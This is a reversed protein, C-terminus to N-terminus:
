MSAGDVLVGRLQAMQLQLLAMDYKLAAQKRELGSYTEFMGVLEMLPRRGFKYQETFMELSAKTEALVGIGQAQQAALTEYSRQLGVIQRRSDEAAEAARRDVVDNTASIAELSAATGLGLMQNAGLRLGSVIGDGNIAASAKLSPLYGAREMKAQAVLQAGEGRAKLVSLPEVNGQDVPLDQLGSLGAVPTATMTNLEAMATQADQLDSDRAARIETVKQSIVRSESRDSMGGEVRALMIREYDAMRAVAVEALRAQEQARQAKVYYALGDHVRRNIDTSLNVAAVEVDAAAYAREAKKLGNDFLVQEVLLSTVVSSLSTLDVSPGLSPLWNKSKADARLRAVRLEAQAAGASASLVSGAVQAYPGSKPVVSRRLLLDDIIASRATADDGARQMESANAIQDPRQGAGLGFQSVGAGNDAGMCGSLLLTALAATGLSIAGARSKNRGMAPM